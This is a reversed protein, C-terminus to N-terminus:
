RANATVARRLLDVPITYASGGRRFRLTFATERRSRALVDLVDDPNRLPAGNIAVLVDGTRVGAASLIGMRDPALVRYGDTATQGGTPALRVGAFVQRPQGVERLDLQWRGARRALIPPLRVRHRAPAAHAIPATHVDATAVAGADGVTPAEDEDAALGIEGPVVASGGLEPLAATEAVPTPAYVRTTPPRRAHALRPLALRPLVMGAGAGLLGLLVVEKWWRGAVVLEKRGQIMM